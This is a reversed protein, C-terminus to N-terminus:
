NKAQQLLASLHAKQEASLQKINNSGRTITAAGVGLLQSLQRQSLEGKLLENVINVRAVLATREDETLLLTLLADDQANKQASQLLSVVQEWHQYEPELVDTKSM